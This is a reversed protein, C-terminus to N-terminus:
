SKMLFMIYGANPEPVLCNIWVLLFSSYKSLNEKVIMSKNTPVVKRFLVSIHSRTNV